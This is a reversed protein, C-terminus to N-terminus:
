LFLRKAQSASLQKHEKTDKNLYEFIKNKRKSPFQKQEKEREQEIPEDEPIHQSEEIEPEHDIEEKCVVKKDKKLNKM